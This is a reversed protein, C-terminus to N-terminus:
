EKDVKIILKDAKIKANKLILKINIGQPLGQIPLASAPLELTPVTFGTTPMMPPIATQQVTSEQLTEKSDEKM